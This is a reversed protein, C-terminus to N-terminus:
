VDSMSFLVMNKRKKQNKKRWGGFKYSADFSLSAHIGSAFNYRIDSASREDSFYQKKNASVLSAPFSLSLSLLSACTFPSSPPYFLPMLRFFLSGSANICYSGSTVGM